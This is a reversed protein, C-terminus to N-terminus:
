NISGSLYGLESFIDDAVTGAGGDPHFAPALPKTHHGPLLPLQGLGHVREVDHAPLRYAGNTPAPADEHVAEILPSGSGGGLVRLRRAVDDLAYEAGAGGTQAAAAAVAAAAAAGHSHADSLRFPTNPGGNSSVTAASFTPSWLDEACTGHETLPSHSTHSSAQSPDGTGNPSRDDRHGYTTRSSAPRSRWEQDSYVSSAQSRGRQATGVGRRDRVSEDDEKIANLAPADPSAMTSTLDFDFGEFTSPAACPSGDERAHAPDPGGAEPPQVAPAGVDAHRSRASHLASRDHAGAPKDRQCSSVPTEAISPPQGELRGNLAVDSICRGHVQSAKPPELPAFKDQPDLTQAVAYRPMSKLSALTGEVNESAFRASQCRSPPRVVEIPVDIVNVPQGPLLPCGTTWERSDDYADIDYDLRYYFWYTGGQKLGGSRPKTWYPHDGDFIINTFKFCGSWTGVGRRRDHHMVYPQTFNDWSGLLEVARVRPPARFLFTVLTTPDM